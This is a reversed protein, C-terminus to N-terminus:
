HVPVPNDLPAKHQRWFIGAGMDFGLIRLAVSVWFVNSYFKKDNEKYVLSYTDVAWSASEPLQNRNKIEQRPLTMIAWLSFAWTKWTLDKAPLLQWNITVQIQFRQWWKFPAM